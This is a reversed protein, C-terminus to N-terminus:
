REGDRPVFRGPLGSETMGPRHLADLQPSIAVNLKEGTPLRSVFWKNYLPILDRDLKASTGAACRKGFHERQSVGTRGSADPVAFLIRM